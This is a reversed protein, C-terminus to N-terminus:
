RAGGPDEDTPRVAPFPQTRLAHEERLWRDTEVLLALQARTADALEALETRLAILSPADALARRLIRAVLQREIRRWTLVAVIAFAALVLAATVTIVAALLEVPLM